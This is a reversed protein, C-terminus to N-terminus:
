CTLEPPGHPPDESHDLDLVIAAPPEPSRAMGPDVLAHPLRSLDTRTVSHALRSFPPASAVDQGPELAVREVSLKCRPAHRLSQAENGEAYGSAIHSIRQAFLDRLPQAISAPHRKARVAAAV